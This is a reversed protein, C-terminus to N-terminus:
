SQITADLFTNLNNLNLFKSRMKDNIMINVDREEVELIGVQCQILRHADGYGLCNQHDCPLINIKDVVAVNQFKFHTKKNLM